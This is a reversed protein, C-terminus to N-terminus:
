ATRVAAYKEFLAAALAVPDGVPGAPYAKAGVGMTWNQGLQALDARYVAPDVEGPKGAAIAERLRVALLEYRALYYDVALGAWM